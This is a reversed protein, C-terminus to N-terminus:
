AARPHDHNPVGYLERMQDEAYRRMIAAKDDRSMKLFIEAIEKLYDDIAGGLCTGAVRVAPPMNPLSAAKAIAGLYPLGASVGSHDEGAHFYYSIPFQTLDNRVESIEATLGWLVEQAESAEFDLVNSGTEIEAHHLLDIEHGVTRRRELVPYLSLLWSVSATLLGFGIIAELGEVLRLARTTPNVDGGYTILGGISANIADLFDRHRDPVGAPFVYHSQIFPAYILAFGFVTLWVWLGMITLIAFPGALTIASKRRRAIPRFIKWVTRAAYDSMAGRGSPHFLTHFVDHFVIGILLLGVAISIFTV